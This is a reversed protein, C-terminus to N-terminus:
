VSREETLGCLVCTRYQYSHGFEKASKGVIEVRSAKFEPATWKDFSHEGYVETRSVGFLSKVVQVSVNKHCLETM